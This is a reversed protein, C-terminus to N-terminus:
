KKKYEIRDSEFPLSGKPQHGIMKKDHKLRKNHVIAKPVIRNRSDVGIDDLIKKPTYGNVRVRIWGINNMNFSRFSLDRNKINHWINDCGKRFERWSPEKLNKKTVTTYFFGCTENAKALCRLYFEENTMNPTMTMYDKIYEMEKMVLPVIENYKFSGSVGNKTVM